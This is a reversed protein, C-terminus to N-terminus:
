IYNALFCNLHKAKWLPIERWWLCTKSRWAFLCLSGLLLRFKYKSLSVIAVYIMCWPHSSSFIQYAVAMCSALQHSKQPYQETMMADEGAQSPTCIYFVSVFRSNIEWASPCASEQWCNRYPLWQSLCLVVGWYESQYGVIISEFFILCYLYPNELESMIKGFFRRHEMYVQIWLCTNAAVAVPLSFFHM